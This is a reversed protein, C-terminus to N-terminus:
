ARSPRNHTLRSFISFTVLTADPFSFKYPVVSGDRRSSWRCEWFSILGLVVAIYLTDESKGGKVSMVGSVCEVRTQLWCSAFQQAVPTYQLSHYGMCSAASLNQARAFIVSVEIESPAAPKADFIVV